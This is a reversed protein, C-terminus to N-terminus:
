NISSCYYDMRYERRSAVSWTPMQHMEGGLHSGGARQSGLMKPLHVWLEMGWAPLTAAGDHHLKVGRLLDFDREGSSSRGHIQFIHIIFLSFVAVMCPFMARLSSTKAGWWRCIAEYPPTRRFQLKTNRICNHSLLSLVPYIGRIGSRGVSHISHSNTDLVGITRSLFLFYSEDALYPSVSM